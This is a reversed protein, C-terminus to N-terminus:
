DLGSCQNSSVPGSCTIHQLAEDQNTHWQRRRYFDALDYGVRRSLRAPVPSEEVRKGINSMKRPCSNRRLNCGAIGKHDGIGSVPRATGLLCQEVADHGPLQFGKEGPLLRSVAMNWLEDLVLKACKEVAADQRPPRDDWM